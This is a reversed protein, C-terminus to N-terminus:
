KINFTKLANGKLIADVEEYGKLYSFNYRAPLAFVYKNNRGLETPNIPAAGTHFKDGQLLNWQNITFVMIPIDQRPDSSSWKPHRILIIVGKEVVKQNGNEDFSYGEWKDFVISYGKWSEPLTFVFGYESNIYEINKPTSKKSCNTSFISVGIILILLLFIKLNIKM